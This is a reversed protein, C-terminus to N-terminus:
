LSLLELLDRFGPGIALSAIATGTYVKEEGKLDRILYFALVITIIKSLGFLLPNKSMLFRAIVHEEKLGAIVGFSSIWAELVHPFWAFTDEMWPIRKLFPYLLLSLSLALIAYFVKSFRLFILDISFIAIFLAWGIKRALKLGFHSLFLFSLGFLFWIGPTVTLPTHFLRPDLFRAGGGALMWPFLAKRFERQDFRKAYKWIIYFATIFLLSVLATTFPTYVM